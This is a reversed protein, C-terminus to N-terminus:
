FNNTQQFKILFFGISRINSYVKEINLVIGQFSIVM